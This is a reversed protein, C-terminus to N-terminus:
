AQRVRSPPSVRSLPWGQRDERPRAAFGNRALLAKFDTDAYTKLRLRARLSAYDSFATRVMGLLASLLFGERFAFSALQWADDVMGNDPPIVDAIVLRGDDSLLRDCHALVETLADDDLYQVVSIITILDVSRPELSALGAPDLVSIKSSGGYRALLRRRVSDAADWLLLEECRGAIFQARTADGCGFDLVRLGPERIFPIVSFAVDFDHAHQHRESVYITPAGNWYDIWNM